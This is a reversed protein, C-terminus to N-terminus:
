SNIGSIAANAKFKTPTKLLPTIKQYIKPKQEINEREILAELANFPPLIATSTEM